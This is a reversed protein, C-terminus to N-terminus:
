VIWHELIVGLHVDRVVRVLFLSPKVAGAVEDVVIELHKMPGDVVHIGAAPDVDFLFSRWYQACTFYAPQLSGVADQTPRSVFRQRKRSM